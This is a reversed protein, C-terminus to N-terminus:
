IRTSLPWSTMGRNPGRSPFMNAQMKLWVGEPSSHQWHIALLCVLHEPSLTGRDMFPQIQDRVEALLKWAQENLHLPSTPISEHSM